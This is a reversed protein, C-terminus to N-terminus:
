YTCTPLLHWQATASGQSTKVFFIDYISKRSLGEHIHGEYRFTNGYQDQRGTWHYSVEMSTIPTEALAQIEGLQSIGDHNADIWLLLSNWISDQGDIVGDRNDDFEALAAFGNSARRGSRLLTATGFLESGDDVKGNGNRDLWLFAENAGRETWGITDKNGTATIDFVVPDNTGTLRYGGKELNIVIPSPPAPDCGVPPNNVEDPTLWDNNAQDCEASQVGESPSGTPPGMIYGPCSSDGLGLFHGIEHAIIVSRIPECDVGNAQSDFITITGGIVHGAGDRIPDFQGCGGSTSTSAGPQLIVSFVYDANQTISM